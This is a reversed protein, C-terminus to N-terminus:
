KDMWDGRNVFVNKSVNEDVSSRDILNITCRNMEKKERRM